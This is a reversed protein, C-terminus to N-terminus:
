GGRFPALNAKLNAMSPGVTDDNWYFNKTPKGYRKFNFNNNTLADKMASMIGKLDDAPLEKRFQESSDSPTFSDMGGVPSSVDVRVVVTDTDPMYDVYMSDTYRYDGAINANIYGLNIGGGRAETLVEKIIQKLQGVKIKIMRKSEIKRSSTSEICDPCVPNVPSGDEYVSDPIFMNGCEVCEHESYKNTYFVDYNM